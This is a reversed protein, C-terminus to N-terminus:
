IKAGQKLYKIKAKVNTIDLLLTCLQIGNKRMKEAIYPKHPPPPTPPLIDAANSSITIGTIICTKFLHAVKFVKNFRAINFLM